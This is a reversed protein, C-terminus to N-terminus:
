IKLGGHYNNSIAVLLHSAVATAPPLRIDGKVWCILMVGGRMLATLM